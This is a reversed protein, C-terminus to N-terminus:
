STIPNPVKVQLFNFHQNSTRSSSKLSPNAIGLQMVSVKPNWCSLHTKPKWISPSKSPIKIPILTKPTVNPPPLQFPNLIKLQIPTQPNEDLHNSTPNEDPICVSKPNKGLPLQIQSKRQEAKSGGSDTDGPHLIGRDGGRGRWHCTFVRSCSITFPLTFM